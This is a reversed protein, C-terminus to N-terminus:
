VHPTFLLVEVWSIFIVAYRAAEETSFQFVGKQTELPNAVFSMVTITSACVFWAIDGIVLGFLEIGVQQRRSVMGEFTERLWISGVVSVMM